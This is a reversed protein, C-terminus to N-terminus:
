VSIPNKRTRGLFPYSSGKALILHSAFYSMHILISKFAVTWSPLEHAIGFSYSILVLLGKYTTLSMFYLLTSSLLRDQFFLRQVPYIGLLTLVFPLLHVGIPSGTTLDLLAGLFLSLTLLPVVPITRLALVCSPLFFPISGLPPPLCSVLWWSGLAFVFSLPLM